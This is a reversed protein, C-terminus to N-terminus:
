AAPFCRCTATVNVSNGPQVNFWALWRGGRRAIRIGAAPGRVPVPSLHLAATAALLGVSVIDAGPDASLVNVQM